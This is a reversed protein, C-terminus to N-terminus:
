YSWCQLLSVGRKLGLQLMANCKNNMTSFIRTAITVPSLSLGDHFRRNRERWLEFITAQWGQLLALNQHKSASATPLWLLIHDWLLPPSSIRLRQTVLRWVEASFICEFFLHNRSEHALGCLLCDLEIDFGWTSLRDLTPNRNLIFLWSTIAHRPIVAKHWVLPAWSKVPRSIRVANWVAKSSFSFYPIGDIEWVPTDNALSMSITSIFSHLLVQRETRAHPLSWGDENRLEAVTSFLPIGLRTPGDSGLFHYLPGFPTWPDWWFFTSDGNGINISFFKLAKPRLKLLKRFIWSYTVNKENLAWLPSTSLYKSRIWAVWFSGARFFLMWFLKLACTENWSGIQRLGLGGELKPFCINYWSVKAGSPSDVKGRWLFASCLGNIRKIVQKPIFFASTWFGIIGSIVSSILTLRGALSLFKHTWSNLKKRIQSLLPDCDRVSLKRSCLPLGLYRIPLVSPNLNFTNKIQTLNDESLGSCFMSTKEINMGLGSLEEFKALVSMVGRMSHESGELFILLDDAFCLHTLKLTECGPHYTFSGEEAAKNLMLSLVNMILVFLIPSLPDGQRLGTRGKFFGSTVGNISVSFSPYCVCAKIWNIFVLPVQYAQLAILLFDWRVSDFAKSIDVKLTIREKRLGLHYGQMVESALLVNEMLLRDKVFATQNPLILGPLLNKLRDLLLRSIIKYVTNLCSIPRFDKLEVAGPRKPILVLSTSNLGSPIFSDRFFHLVASTLDQGIISWTTKFFEAPFGDPGPTKNLPMKFLCSRIDEGSFPSSLSSQQAITCKAQVLSFLLLPLDPSFIGKVTRLIGAFHDVALDHVEHLSSTLSGDPKLLFKIANGANRAVSVKHFFSTNFDGEELWRLRSKQKFFSEEALSLLLWVEKASIENQINIPSPDNLALLQLGNLKSHAEIVRKELDSFNDKMLEKIPGKLQKLKFCFDKLTFVSVGVRSWAEM